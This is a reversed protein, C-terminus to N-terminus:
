RGKAGGPLNDTGTNGIRKTNAIDVKVDTFFNLVCYIHWPRPFITKIGFKHYWAEPFLNQKSFLIPKPIKGPCSTGLIM